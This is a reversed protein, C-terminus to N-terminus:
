PGEYILENVDPVSELSGTAEGIVAYPAIDEVTIEVAVGPLPANQAIERSEAENSAMFDIGQQLSQRWAAIVEPNEQAYSPTTMFGAVMAREQAGDTALKVAELMTDELLTFGRAELGTYFPIASVAADIREAELQDGQVDFPVVVFNVDDVDVGAELLLYRTTEASAGTLTPVGVTKGGLDAASEIEPDGSVLVSNPHEEDVIQVNSVMTLPVGQSAAQMLISGTTMVIDFQRGLASTWAPLDLGETFEVDLGNAEFYGREQAIRVPLTGFGPTFAVRVTTLETSPSTDSPPSTASVPGALIGGFLGTLASAAFLRYRNHQTQKM